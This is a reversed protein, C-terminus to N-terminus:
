WPRRGPSKFTNSNAFGPKKTTRNDSTTAAAVRKRSDTVPAAPQVDSRMIRWAAKYNWRGKSDVLDNDLVFKLLKNRDVKEGKPNLDKDSEITSVESQMYATADDIAKQQQQEAATLQQRVGTTAKEVLQQNWSIFEKWQDDDGGFWRPKPPAEEIAQAESKGQGMKAEIEERIKTMETTHRQEQDNFRKTWDQEREKWRPHDALGAEKDDGVKNDATRDGSGDSSHNQNDNTNDSSSDSSNDNGKNTDPFAPQGESKFQTSLQTSM